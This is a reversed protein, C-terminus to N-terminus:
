SFGEELFVDIQKPTSGRIITLTIKKHIGHQELADYLSFSSSLLTDNVHTIIDGEKIKARFAPSSPLVADEHLSPATVLAGTKQLLSFRRALSPSLMIYRVGLFPKQLKGYKKIRAIDDKIVNVPIAFGINEARSVVAANIGIVRGKADILPGGSNGPNIAADTQILGRLSEKMEKSNAEIARSLGSIIGESVTNNFLGLANGIALVSQGLEVKSSDGLPLIPFADRSSIKLFAVDSVVDIGVLKAKYSVDESTTVEYHLHHQHVVHMNTVVIGSKDVLFGSGGDIRLHGGIVNRALASTKKKQTDTLAFLSFPKEKTAADIDKYVSVSVVAPISKKIILVRTQDSM